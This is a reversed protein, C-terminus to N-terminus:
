SQSAAAVCSAIFHRLARARHSLGNDHGESWGSKEEHSMEGFTKSYGDPQFMPDYGFGYIGRPPWVLCGFIRGEFFQVHDDPWALALTATFNAIPGENTWAEEALVEDRVRRMAGTFDKDPGGWDASYVGPAGKIAAVELGSDDALAPLGTAKQAARAKIAANEKFTTGTEAPEPLGLEGASIVAIRHPTLLATIERLKGVNHSALVLKDGAKLVYKVM